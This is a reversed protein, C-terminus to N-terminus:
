LSMVATSQFSPSFIAQFLNSFETMGVNVLCVRNSFFISAIFLCVRHPNRFKWFSMPFIINLVSLDFPSSQMLLEGLTLNLYQGHSKFFESLKKDVMCRLFFLM